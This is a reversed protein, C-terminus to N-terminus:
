KNRFKDLWSIRKVPATLPKNAELKSIFAELKLFREKSVFSENLQRQVIRAEELVKVRKELGSFADTIAQLQAKLVKIQDDPANPIYKIGLVENIKAFQTQYITDKDM